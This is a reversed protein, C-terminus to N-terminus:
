YILNYLYDRLMYFIISVLMISDLRDLVGGHGPLLSGSDKVGVRRKLYSEFLDGALSAFSILLAFPLATFFAQKIGNHHFFFFTTTLLTCCYGGIFGEWTKGPSIRPWIKHTGWRKGAGYSGSDHAAVMSFLLLTLLAYGQQHLVVILALPLTPYFPLILWFPLSTYSFLRPWETTVIVVWAIVMITSFVWAPLFMITIGAILGLISGTIIRKILESM